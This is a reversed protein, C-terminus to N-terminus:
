MSQREIKTLEASTKPSLRRRLSVHVVVRSTAIVRGFALLLLDFISLQVSVYSGCDPDLRMEYKM